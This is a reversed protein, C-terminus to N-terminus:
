RIDVGAVGLFARLREAEAEFARRFAAGLPAARVYGPAIALKADRVQANVWGVVDDRWLLPLAYYGFRRRAPPTYAELRYEWGWFREFRRRDWVVPDFPALFRVREEVESQMTEGSPALWTTGDVDVRAVAPDRAFAALARTRLAPALSADTVMRAVERFSPEPLPAYLDLLLHLIERARESPSRAVAHAPAITYVKIGNARRAVHLRGRFHLAELVRTTAASDGGWGNVTRHRSLASLDRPHTEGHREIHALVRAALRPHEREVRFRLARPRPHLLARAEPTMVGYVHLYDEVLGLTAYERDLDGARYGEVRQRLVLDAARAPARIPDLQVFRMRGVAEDVSAAPRLSRAIAHARLDRLTLRTAM